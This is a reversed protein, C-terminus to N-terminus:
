YLKFFVNFTAFVSHLCSLMSTYFNDSSCLTIKCLRFEPEAFIQIRSVTYWINVITQIESLPWSQFYHMIGKTLWGNLLFLEHVHHYLWWWWLCCFLNTLKLFNIFKSFSKLERVKRGQSGKYKGAGKTQTMKTKKKKLYADMSSRISSVTINTSM